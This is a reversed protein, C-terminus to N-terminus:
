ALVEAIIDPRKLAISILAQAAGSPQRRGQEWEQLTRKSIHLINAFQQQSLGTKQRAELATPIAVQHTAAARNALMDDVSELLEAALHRSAERTKLEQPSLPM